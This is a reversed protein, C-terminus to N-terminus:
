QDNCLRRGPAVLHNRWITLAVRGKRTRPWSTTSWLPAHVTTKRALIGGLLLLAPSLLWLFVTTGSENGRKLRALMVVEVGIALVAAIVLLLRGRWARLRSGESPPPLEQPSRDAPPLRPSDAAPSSDGPGSPLPWAGITFLLIGLFYLAGGLGSFNKSRIVAEGSGALGVALLGLGLSGARHRLKMGSPRSFRGWM